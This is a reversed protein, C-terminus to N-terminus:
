FDFTVVRRISWDLRFCIIETVAAFIWLVRVSSQKLGFRTCSDKPGDRNNLSLGLHHLVRHRLLCLYNRWVSRGFLLCIKFKCRPVVRQWLLASERKHLWASRLCRTVWQDKAVLVFFHPLNLLLKRNWIWVWNLLWISLVLLWEFLVARGAVEVEARFERATEPGDSRLSDLFRLDLLKHRRRRSVVQKLFGLQEFRKQCFLLAWDFLPRYYFVLQAVQAHRLSISQQANTIVWICLLGCCSFHLLAPGAIQTSFM